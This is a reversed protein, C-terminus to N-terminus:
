SYELVFHKLFSFILGISLRLMLQQKGPGASVPDGQAPITGLHQAPKQAWVGPLQRSTPNGSYAHSTCHASHTPM